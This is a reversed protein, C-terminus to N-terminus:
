LSGLLSHVADVAVQFSGAPGLGALNSNAEGHPATVMVSTSHMLHPELSLSGNFGRQQADALIRLASCDGAGIPVHEFKGDRNLKSDKLHFADTVDRLAEWAAWVDEGAQLYNDMDFISGFVKPDPDADHLESLLQQVKHVSDGYFGPENEMYLVLGLQEAHAKLVRLRESSGAEM